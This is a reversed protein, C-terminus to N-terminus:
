DKNLDIPRATGNRLSQLHLSYLKQKEEETKPLSYYLEEPNEKFFYTPTFWYDPIMPIFLHMRGIQNEECVVPQVKHYKKYSNFLVLDGANIISDADIEEGDEMIILGGDKYDIGKQTLFVIAQIEGPNDYHPIQGEGHRYWAVRVFSHNLQHERLSVLDRPDLKHRQCYDLVFQDSNQQLAVRNRLDFAEHVYKFIFDDYTSKKNKYMYKMVFNHYNDPGNKKSKNINSIQNSYDLKSYKEVITELDNNEIFNPIIVFGQDGYLQRALEKYENSAFSLKDLDNKVMYIRKKAQEYNWSIIKKKVFINMVVMSLM